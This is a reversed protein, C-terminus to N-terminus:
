FTVCVAQKNFFINQVKFTPSDIKKPTKNRALKSNIFYERRKKAFFIFKRSKLFIKKFPEEISTKGIYYTYNKTESYLLPLKPNFEDFKKGFRFLM